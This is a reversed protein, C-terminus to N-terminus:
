TASLHATVRFTHGDPHRLHFERVGWPKDTPPLAIRHGAAVARAHLDALSALGDVWLTIWVGDTSDDGPFSPERTGRSGQAGVCLFIQVQPTCVSGFHAPGHENRVAGGPIMGGANWAFGRTFGLVEFWAFSAAVDRVNLIPTLETIM